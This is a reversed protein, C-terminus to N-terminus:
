IVEKKMFLKVIEKAEKVTAAEKGALKLAAAVCESQVGFVKAASSTLEAASYVSASNEKKKKM